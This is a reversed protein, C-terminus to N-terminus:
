EIHDLKYKLVIFTKKHMTVNMYPYLLYNAYIIHLKQVSIYCIPAPVEM